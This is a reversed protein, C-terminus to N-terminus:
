LMAGAYRARSRSRIPWVEELAARSRFHRRNRSQETSSTVESALPPPLHRLRARASGGPSCTACTSAAFVPCVGSVPTQSPTRRRRRPTGSISDSWRESCGDSLDLDPYAELARAELGEAAVDVPIGRIDSAIGLHCLAIGPRKRLPIEATTHLAIADWVLETAREDM